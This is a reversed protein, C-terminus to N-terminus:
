ARRRQRSLDVRRLAEDAAWRVEGAQGADVHDHQEARLRRPQERGRRQAGMGQPCPQRAAWADVGEVVPLGAAAVVEAHLPQGHVRPPKVVFGRIALVPAPAARAQTAALAAVEIEPPRRLVGSRKSFTVSECFTGLARYENSRNTMMVIM